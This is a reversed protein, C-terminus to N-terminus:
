YRGKPGTGYQQGYVYAAIPNVGHINSKLGKATGELITRQLQEQGLAALWDGRQQPLARIGLLLPEHKIPDRKVKVMHGSIKDLDEDLLIDGRKKGPIDQELIFGVADEAIMDTVPNKNIDNAVSYPILDGVAFDINKGPDKIVTTDTAARTVVEFNKKKLSKRGYADYLANTMYNQAERIGRLRLVEHPDQLGESLPQGKSVEDGIKVTVEQGPLIHHPEDDVTVNYGGGPAPNIASVKGKSEALTAKRKVNQPLYTLQKIKDFASMGQKKSRVIDSDWLVGGTNKSYIGGVTLTGTETTLDYVLEEYEGFNKVSKFFDRNKQHVNEEPKWKGDYYKNDEDGITCCIKISRKLYDYIQSKSPRIIVRYMNLYKKRPYVVTSSSLDLKNCICLIQQALHFSTTYITIRNNNHNAQSIDGDGDIMGCLFDGLWQKNYHIFDGPLHKNESYRGFALDADVSLTKNHIKFRDEYEKYEINLGSLAARIENKVVSNAQTIQLCFPKGKRFIVCGESIFFGALYGSSFIKQAKGNDINGIDCGNYWKTLFSDDKTISYINEQEPDLWEVEKHDQYTGCRSCYGNTESAYAKRVARFGCKVCQQKAKSIIFPHNDQSIVASSGCSAIIMPTTPEHRRVALVQTWRGNDFVRLDNDIPIVEEKIPSGTNLGLDNINDNDTFVFNDREYKEFLDKMTSFFPPNSGERVFVLSNHSFCHFQKMMGQTLPEGVSQGAIAGVNTGQSYLKGNENPGYCMACIGRPRKCTIPSRVRAIKRGQKKMDNVIDPTLMKGTKIEYREMVNPDDLKMDIGETDGCDESDILQDGVASLILKNQYGPAATELARDIMGKRAGYQHTFYESVSLGESFGKKIPVTVPANTHDMVITPGSLQQRIQGLKNVAGSKQWQYLGSNKEGYKDIIPVLENEVITLIQEAKDAETMKSASLKDIKDLIKSRKPDKVPEIDKMTMTQNISAKDGLMRLRNVIHGANKVNKKTLEDALSTIKKKDWISDYDRYEEPIENNIMVNGVTTRKGKFTVTDNYEIEGKDIDDQVDVASAYAKRVDKGGKGSSMVYLGLQSMDQPLYNGVAADGITAPSRLINSPKISHADTVAGASIPVHVQMTDWVALGNEMAFTWTDPVTIDYMTINKGTPEASTIIDWNSSSNDCLDFWLTTEVSFNNTGLISKIKEYSIRTLYPQKKSLVVYLSNAEKNRDEKKKKTAGISRLAAQLEERISAPLPLICNRGYEPPDMSRYRNLAELKPMANINGLVPVGLGVCENPLFKEIDMTKPNLACISHGSSVTLKRGNFTEIEWEECEKHISFKSVEKMKWNGYTDVSPVFVGKPVDYEVVKMSKIEMSKEDKPFNKIDIIETSAIIGNHPMEQCEKSLHNVNSYGNHWSDEKKNVYKLVFISGVCSDGDFDANLGKIIMNPIRIAKGPAIKAQFAQISYKHLSPARNLLIPREQMAEILARDVLDNKDEKMKKHAEVASLGFRKILKNMTFPKFLQKAMKKPIAVEDIGLTPDPVIVGRAALDQQKRLMKSQFFGTKPSDGTITAIVGKAPRTLARSGSIGTLAEYGQYVSKRLDKKLEDDLDEADKLQNAVLGIDRYLYNLESVGMDGTELQYIPRFQPPLVPVLQTMYAEEPRRNQGKLAKVYRLARHASNKESGKKRPIIRNLEEEKKDLDVNSLLNKIGQGGTAFNAFYPDLVKNLVKEKKKEESDSDKIKLSQPTLGAAAMLDDAYAKRPDEIIQGNVGVYHEGGVINKFQSDTIDGLKKIPDKFIPNPIPEPLEIHTWKSGKVGGTLDPDFLGGKHEKLGKGRLMKPDTIAGASISKIEEDSTPSLIQLSGAKDVNVGAVQLMAKFKDWVFPVKPGPLMHGLQVARWFEDSREGKHTAMERLLNKTGHSVLSWNTLADISKSGEEGGTVPQQNLDYGAGFSRASFGTDVTKVLKYIYQNGQTINGIIKGTKPDILEETEPLNHKKLLKQVEEHNNVPEFNKINITKGTKDAVRSVVTELIQSPNTRGVVGIPNLIIEVPEGTRKVLPMESDPIISSIVGKNGYRGSIKDGVEMPKVAKIQVKHARGTETVDTVIGPAHKEWYIVNEKLPRVLGKGLKRLIRDESTDQTKRITAFIVDGYEVKQGKKIIGREDLKAAQQDTIRGPFSVGFQKKDYVFQEGKPAKEEHMQYHSMKKAFSDSIIIGDEITSGSGAMYAVRANKGLALKGNKTFNLDALLEDVSVTDGENVVPNHHFFSKDNLKFNNYTNIKHVGGKKDKIKIFDPTVQQVTGDVPSSVSFAEGVSDEITKGGAFSSVIKPIEPDVLSVTQESHKSALFARGGQTSDIFPIMATAFTFMSQSSPIVLDVESSPILEIKGKYQVKVNKNNWKVVNGKEVKYQDPFAIKKEHAKNPSLRIPKKNKHDIYLGYLDNGIKQAGLSIYNVVGIKDSEPTKVPDLIGLHSPHLTRADDKVMQLNGLAGEGMLTTKFTENVIHIPNHQESRESIAMQTFLGEVMKKITPVALVDRVKDKTDISRKLRFHIAKENKELREKFFDDVSHVSKFRLHDRDDVDDKGTQVDILKKSAGLLLNEDLKAYPKRLTIETTEPSIETENFQRSIAKIAEEESLSEGLWKHAFKRINSSLTTGYKSKNIDLLEDGWANKIKEDSVGLARLTPYLPIISNEVQMSIEGTTPSMHIEMKKGRGGKALNIQSKPLGNAQNVTYVGPKLRFQTPLNWESGKVIFTGRSTMKPLDMMKVKKIRNIEKGTEIDILSVDGYVPIGFTRDRLKAKKQGQYDDADANDNVWASNLVLRQKEGDIPFINKLGSVASDKIKNFQNETSFIDSAAERTKQEAYKFM